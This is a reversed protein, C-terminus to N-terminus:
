AGSDFMIRVEGEGGRVDKGDGEGRGFRSLVDYLQPVLIWKRMSSYTGGALRSLITEINSITRLWYQHINLIEPLLVVGLRM